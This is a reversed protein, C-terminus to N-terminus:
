YFSNISEESMKNIELFRREAIIDQLEDANKPSRGLEELANRIDNESGLVKGYWKRWPEQVDAHPTKNDNHSKPLQEEVVAATKQKNQSKIWRVTAITALMGALAAAVKLVSMPPVVNM